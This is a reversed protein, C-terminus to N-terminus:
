RVQVNPVNHIHGLYCIECAPLYLVYELSVERALALSYKSSKVLISRARGTHVLDCTNGQIVIM